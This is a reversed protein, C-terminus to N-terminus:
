NRLFSIFLQTEEDHQGYNQTEMSSVGMQSPVRYNMYGPHQAGGSYTPMAQHNPVPQQSNFNHNLQDMSKSMCEAIKTLANSMAQISSAFVNNSERIAQCMEKRFLANDKTEKLLLSHRERASLNPELNKRKNDILKPIPNVWKRNPTSTSPKDQSSIDENATTADKGQVQADELDSEGSNDSEGEDFAADAADNDATSLISSSERGYQLPETSALGGWINVLDDYIELVLKGSGSRSGATVAHSFKQRLEKVKEMVRKYGTKVYLKNKEDPAANTDPGFLEPQECYKKSM